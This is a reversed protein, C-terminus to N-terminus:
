EVKLLSDGGGLLYGMFEGAAYSIMFLVQLPLSRVFHGIHRRKHFVQKTMRWLMLGPLLPSCSLYFARRAISARERRMGAFSRSYYYRQALFYLLGFEKKHSVVIGPVSFFKVGAKKLEEHLFFEWCTRKVRDDVGDLIEKRYSVNNGTIGSVEGDPAPPMVGSYECLFVAWDILRDVSGNVVTGGVAMYGQAHAKLMEGFWGKQVICHDEIITIIAGTALAMGRARLEPIGLRSPFHWLTVSPFNRRVHDETGDHCCNLVIIEVDYNERERELATLCDHITPLGNVCAIVVSIRQSNMVNIM